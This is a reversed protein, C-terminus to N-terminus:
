YIENYIGYRVYIERQYLTLNESRLNKFPIVTM